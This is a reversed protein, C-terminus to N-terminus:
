KLVRIIFLILLTNLFLASFVLKTTMLLKLEELLINCVTAVTTRVFAPSLLVIMNRTM